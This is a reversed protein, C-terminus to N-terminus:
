SKAITMQYAMLEPVRGPFKTPLTAVYTSFCQVWTALDPILKRTQLLDAAQVVRVHGELSPPMPRGKGKAPPLESFDIYDNALIKAVLKKPLAPLGPGMSALSPPPSIGRGTGSGLKSLLESAQDQLPHVKSPDGESIFAEM